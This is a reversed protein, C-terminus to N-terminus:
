LRGLLERLLLLEYLEGLRLLLEELLLEYLPPDDLRLLPDDLRLLPDELLLLPDELLLLEDEEREEPELRYYLIVALVWGPRQSKIVWILVAMLFLKIM